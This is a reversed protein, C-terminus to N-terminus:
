APDQHIDVCPVSVRVSTGAGPRSEITVTGDVYAARERMGFIGLGDRDQLALARMDFGRGDDSVTGVVMDASQSLEVDIRSAEAHRVANNMSEQVIRYLALKGEWSLREDSVRGKFTITAGTGDAVSRVHAKLAATLGLEDLQPPRLGTAIRRVGELSEAIQERLEGLLPAADALEPQRGAVKLRLLLVALSQATEDHLERSIRGREREEAELAKVAIQRLQRRSTAMHEMIQNFVLILRLLRRDAVPSEPARADLNGRRIQQAARILGEVPSLAVRVLLANIVASLVIGIGAFMVVLRVEPIPEPRTAARATLLTGIIAGAVVIAANGILIKYFLPIRLLAFGGRSSRKSGSKEARHQDMLREEIM